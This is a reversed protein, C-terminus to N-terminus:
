RAASLAALFSFLPIQPPSNSTGSTHLRFRLSSLSALAFFFSFSFRFVSTEAFFCFFAFAFAFAFPDFFCYSSSLLALSLSDFVNKM